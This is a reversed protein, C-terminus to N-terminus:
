KSDKFLPLGQSKRWRVVEGTIGHPSCEIEDPTNFILGNGNPHMTVKVFHKQLRDIYESLEKGKLGNPNEFFASVFQIFESETYQEFKDNMNM